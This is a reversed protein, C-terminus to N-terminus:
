RMEPELCMLGNQFVVKLICEEFICKKQLACWIVGAARDHLQCFSIKFMPCTMCLKEINFYLVESAAQVQHNCNVLHWFIRIQRLSIAESLQTVLQGFSLLYITLLMTSYPVQIEYEMAGEKM